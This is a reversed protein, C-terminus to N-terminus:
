YTGGDLVFNRIEPLTIVGGLNTAVGVLHGDSELGIKTSDSDYKGATAAISFTGYSNVTASNVPKNLEILGGATIIFDPDTPTAGLAPKTTRITLAGEISTSGYANTTPQVTESLSINSTKKEVNDVRDKFNQALDITYGSSENGSVATFNATETVVADVHDLKEWGAATKLVSDGGKLNMVVTDSTNTTTYYFAQDELTPMGAVNKNTYYAGATLDDLSDLNFAGAVGTGAGGPNSDLGSSGIIGVYHFVTGLDAIKDDVYKKRAAHDDQTPDALGSIVGNNLATSTGFDYQSLDITPAAGDIKIGKKIHLSSTGALGQLVTQVELTGAIKSVVSLSTTEIDTFKGTSPNTAGITTGDISGGVFAVDDATKLAFSGQGGIVLPATSGSQGIYLNKNSLDMALEGPLLAGNSPASIGRKIKIIPSAM